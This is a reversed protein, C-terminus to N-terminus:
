GTAPAALEASPLHLLWCATQWMAFCEVAFPLFGVYGPIPMEFIKAQQFIPFIYVWKAAAWYNWFEWLWGCLWGASLLSHFRARRGEALDRLISPLGLRANIPELLFAFALWVLGFLYPALTRPLLVPLLAMLAGALIFVKGTAASPKRPRARGTFIGLAEIWDATVLLAPVITAFSWGYGLAALWWNLPLGVYTWNELRVNYAEFILWLPISTLAMALLGAPRSRLRSEGRLSFVAADAALIYGTWCVPTMYITVFWVRRFLLWEAVAIIGIGAWGYLPLRRGSRRTQEAHRLVLFTLIAVLIAVGVAPM